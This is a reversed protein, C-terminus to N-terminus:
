NPWNQLVAQLRAVANGLSHQSALRSVAEPDGCNRLALSRKPLPLDRVPLVVQRAAALYDAAADLKARLKPNLSPNALLADLSGHEAILRAATKEGIGPVGPLGDSPDGRLLAYDGYSRGPIGYKSTIWHEDVTQLGGKAPYLVRVKPDEVLEFLDRDGSLIEVSEDAAAALTAIIDEAEYGPWGVVALGMAQLLEKGLAEQPTVPDPLDGVRHTKYMPLARVRFAPRWDEDTCIALREPKREPLLRALMSLFGHVANMQVTSPTSHYARYLMSSYDVLLLM